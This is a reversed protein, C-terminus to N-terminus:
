LSSQFEFFFCSSVGLILVFLSGSTASIQWFKLFIISSNSAYSVLSNKNKFLKPLSFQSPKQLITVWLNVQDGSYTNKSYKTKLFYPKFVVRSTINHATSMIVAVSWSAFTNLYLNSRRRGHLRGSSLSVM